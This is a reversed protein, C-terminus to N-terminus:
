NLNNNKKKDPNSRPINFLRGNINKKMVHYKKYKGQKIAKVLEGRTMENGTNMDKFRTNMGTESQKIRKIM